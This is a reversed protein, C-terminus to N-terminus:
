GFDVGVADGDGDDALEDASAARSGGFSEGDAVFRVGRVVCYVGQGNQDDAATFQVSANVYCGGYLVSEVEDPTLPTKGDAALLTPRKENKGSVFWKGDEYGNYLTGERSVMLGTDLGARGFCIIPKMKPPKHGAFNPWAQKMIRAIESKCLEITTKHLAPDLIFNAAFKAKAEPHDKPKEPKGLIPFSLRVRKLAIPESDFYKGKTAM